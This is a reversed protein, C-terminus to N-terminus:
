NTVYEYNSNMEHLDVSCTGFLHWELSNNCIYEYVLINYNEKCCCGLLMVINRHRAFSLVQVESFFETYGQSSAEKRLKVAIVQGDKLQGKYVHRFGGEGLLKDKSFDSTAAQIESFSFKMSEKIYFVSKLGCGTCLVPREPSDYVSSINAEIQKGTIVVLTCLNHLHYM